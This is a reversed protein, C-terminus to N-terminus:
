VFEREGIKNETRRERERERQRARAHIRRAKMMTAKLHLSLLLGKKRADEIERDYFARLKLVQVVCACM